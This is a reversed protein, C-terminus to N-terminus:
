INRASAQAEARTEGTEKFRGNNVSLDRSSQEFVHAPSLGCEKVGIFLNVLRPFFHNRKSGDYRGSRLCCKKFAADQVALACTTAGSNKLSSSTEMFSDFAESSTPRPRSDRAASAPLKLIFKSYNTSKIQWVNEM